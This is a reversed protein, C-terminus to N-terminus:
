GPWGIADLRDTKPRGKLNKAQSPSVLQVALGISELLHGIAPLGAGVDAPVALVGLRARFPPRGPQRSGTM